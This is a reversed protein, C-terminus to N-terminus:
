PADSGYSHAPRLGDTVPRLSPRYELTTWVDPATWRSPLLTPLLRPRGLQEGMGHEGVGAVRLGAVLRHLGELLEPVLGSPSPHM